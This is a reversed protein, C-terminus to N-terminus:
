FLRVFTDALSKYTGRNQSHLHLIGHITLDGVINGLIVAEQAIITGEIRSDKGMVLKKECHVEGQIIGDLRLNEASRFKGEIKTGKSILCNIGSEKQNSSTMVAVPETKTKTTTTNKNFM